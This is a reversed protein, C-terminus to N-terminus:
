RIIAMALCCSCRSDNCLFILRSSERIVKITKIKGSIYIDPVANFWSASLNRRIIININIPVLLEEAVLKKYNEDLKVRLLQFQSLTIKLEDIVASFGQENKADLTLFTNGLQLVGLDLFLAQFSKSDVPVVIDPAKIKVDLALKTAKAYANKM